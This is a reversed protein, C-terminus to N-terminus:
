AETSEWKRGQKLVSISVCFYQCRVYKEVKCAEPKLTFSDWHSNGPLILYIKELLGVVKWFSEAKVVAIALLFFFFNIEM